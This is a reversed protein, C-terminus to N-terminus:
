RRIRPDIWAQVLDVLINLTVFITALTLVIASVTPIDRRFISLNLLGGIGPWNFVAEVLISGALLYGFQLGMLALTSPAVNAAIHVVRRPVLIGRAQLAGVFELDLVELVTARVFRAVIGFPILSLAVTPLIMFRMRELIPMASDGMGIAPLWNLNVSFVVVLAISLWFNPISVAAIMLFSLVRDPWRDCNWAAALGSVIGLTFGVLAAPLAIILTNGLAEVVDPLVPRNNFISIGFDGVVIRGLWLVYQIYIPQDLGFRRRLSDAVEQSVDPPIFMDAADGPALHVLLFVLVSVGLLTPIAFLARKFTFTLM